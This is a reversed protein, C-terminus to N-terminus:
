ACILYKGGSNNRNEDLVSLREKSEFLESRKNIQKIM